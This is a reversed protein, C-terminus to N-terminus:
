ELNASNPDIRAGFTLSKPKERCKLDFYPKNAGM